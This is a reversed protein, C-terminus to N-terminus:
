KPNTPFKHTMVSSKCSIVEFSWFGKEQDGNPHTCLHLYLCIWLGHCRASQILRFIATKWGLLWCRSTWHNHFPGNNFVLSIFTKKEFVLAWRFRLSILTVLPWPASLTTFGTHATSCLIASFHCFTSSTWPLEPELPWWWQLYFSPMQLATWEM